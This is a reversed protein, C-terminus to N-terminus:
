ASSAIPGPVSRDLTAGALLQMASEKCRAVDVPTPWPPGPPAQKQTVSAAAQVPPTETDFLESSLASTGNSPRPAARNAPPQAVPRAAQAPSRPAPAAPASGAAPAAAPAVVPAAA